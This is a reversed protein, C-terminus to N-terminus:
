RNLYDGIRGIVRFAPPTALIEYEKVDIFRDILVGLHPNFSNLAETYYGFLYILSNEKMEEINTAKFNLTAGFRKNNETSESM